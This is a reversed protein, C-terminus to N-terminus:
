LRLMKALVSKRTRIAASPCVEQCCFCAICRSYDITLHRNKIYMCNVPCTKICVSCLTCKEFDIGPCLRLLKKALEIFGVPMRQLLSTAPLEFPELGLDEVRMGLIEIDSIAAKGLGRLFAEKTAPIHLPELGMILALVSDVAVADSGAIIFGVEKLKGSTGPGEGEIASIADVISLSPKVLEYIDVLAGAFDRVYFYRKHLQTKYAGSVLGFLNKIAGTLITLNHTKLKPLSVIYDCEDIWTTLPFRGRWCSREFRVLQAAEEEAIKKAGTKEYVSDINQVQGGWVSPGDGLYIQCNQTRLLRVAARMVEPHTTIGYHPEKAMLLNPKLLVKSGPRVFNSMGGLLDVAETVAKYVRVPEYDQCRVIAVKSKM